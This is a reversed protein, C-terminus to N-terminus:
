KGDNDVDAVMVNHNGNSYASKENNSDFVWRKVLKGNQVDIASWTLRTYYGRGYLATPHVGDLYAIGSNFRDVRNGYNDGWDSVKGRPVPFDITDLEAGTQGDFLTLFEPGDLIYGNGNVYSKSGNGIVKGKGDKTGDATKTILEAKGDCDFDAVCMQTYHQGARINQGMDIRWLQKGELTYCDIYVKDTKGSQSNDKSNSPDWKLFIEYQGDGNVDGVACDNPSYQTGPSNLKIDFYNNGSTFKSNQSNVVKGNEVCDVRYKSASSGGNDQFCTADGSKSTYILKDDRYLRFEADDADDANYRWSVFMGSGSKVAYIGRDLYEMIAKGNGGAGYAANTKMSDAIGSVAGAALILSAALAANKKIKSLM